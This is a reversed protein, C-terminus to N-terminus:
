KIDLLLFIEKGIELNLDKGNMVKVFGLKCLNEGDRGKHFKGFSTNKINTTPYLLMSKESEWYMNYVYMQKLDDDDPEAVEKIKWKTDIIFHKEMKKGDILYTRSIVIDPKILKNNWFKDRNQFNVKINSDDVKLLMRYIYEEWLKNMDFLLALMNEDGGKIDPSYNLLIMKAIKLAENYPITKRNSIIRDFHSKNIQIEKVEPFNLLLRNVGDILYTNTTITKLVQLAKFLIQNILHNCDYIQHITYFREQRILNQQINKAFDLRGKLATVNGSNKAYKKILGHQLLQSVENLFIEFYLDLLSHYRKKLSAESVADVKIKKCHALMKLLVKHWIEKEDESSTNNKDAKPLIEITTNGIQIVGVYNKFKVGHRIAEFYINKNADNYQWLKDIIKDGLEEGKVCHSKSTLKDHEFVRILKNM